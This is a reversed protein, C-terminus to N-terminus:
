FDLSNESLPFAVLKLQKFFGKLNQQKTKCNSVLKVRFKNLFLIYLLRHHFLSATAATKTMIVKYLQLLDLHVPQYAATRSGLLHGPHVYLKLLMLLYVITPRTYTVVIAHPFCTTPFSLTQWQSHCKTQKFVPQFYSDQYILSCFLRLKALDLCVLRLFSPLTLEKLYQKSTLNSSTKFLSCIM